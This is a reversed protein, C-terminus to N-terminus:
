LSKWGQKTEEQFMSEWGHKGGLVVVEMRAKRWFCFSGDMSEEVFCFSGKLFDVEEM